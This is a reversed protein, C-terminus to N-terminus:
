ICVRIDFNVHQVSVPPQVFPFRCCSLVGKGWHEILRKFKVDCAHIYPVDTKFDKDHIMISESLIINNSYYVNSQM